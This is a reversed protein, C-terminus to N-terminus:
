GSRELNITKTGEWSSWGPSPGALPDVRGFGPRRRRMSDRSSSRRSTASRRTDGARTPFRTRDLLECELTAFFSEAMANAYCNGASGMSPKVGAGRCRLGFAISTYQCGQDSHHIVGSAGRQGLAMDLADLVLETPGM